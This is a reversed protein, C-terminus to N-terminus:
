AVMNHIFCGFGDHGFGADLTVSGTRNSMSPFGISM